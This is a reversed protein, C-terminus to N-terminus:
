RWSETAIVGRFGRMFLDLRARETRAFGAALLEDGWKGALEDVIPAAVLENWSSLGVPTRNSFDTNLGRELATQEHLDTYALSALIEFRAFNPTIDHLVGMFAHSWTSLVSLIRDSSPTKHREKGPFHSFHEAGAWAWAFLADVMRRVGRHDRALEATLLRQLTEWQGARVLGLGYASFILVAPYTRVEFYPPYGSQVERAKVYLVRIVDLVLELSGNDGWRGLVGAVTALAETGQENTEVYQCYVEKQYGGKPPNARQEDLTVTILALQDRVLDELPIRFEPKAVYRRASAVALGVSAPDPAGTQALTEVSRQLAEMFSDADDIPIVVGRRHDLLEQGRPRLHGGQAAWFLPYRRNVSRMVAARLAHDWEGSWGCVILGFEDMIRDLLRDYEAPYGALEADTNLIRADKYDGHLKVLYCSAHSLPVAGALADVSAVVVPEVGEDRLANEMLRDFNTTLIVRIYGARVLRAIARHARTPLKKGAARDETSPEIYGDLIARREAATDALHELLQSYNPEGGYKATYWAAWDAHEPEGQVQAVRRVLDLTIEWGTPIAASRSIGSGLLVAHVGRNEFISFALKTTADIKM